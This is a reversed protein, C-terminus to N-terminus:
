CLRKVLVQLVGDVYDARRQDTLRDLFDAGIMAHAGASFLILFAAIGINRM